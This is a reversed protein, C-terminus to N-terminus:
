QLLKRLESFDRTRAVVNGELDCVVVAPIGSVSHNFKGGFSRVESLKLQPWPMKKDKAYEVMADEERDSSILVLEFKDNNRKARNYFRVLDPTYAQCPPCWSATYYFVYYNKPKSEPAHPQLERDKLILLNGDLVSDFVSAAASEDTGAATPEWAQLRKADADSLESSKLTVPRGDRTKFEGAKEGDKDVVDVLKLEATNGKKNTWTEFDACAVGASLLSILIMTKM